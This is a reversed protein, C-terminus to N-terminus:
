ARRLRDDLLEFALDDACEAIAFDLLLQDHLPQFGVRAGAGFEALEDVVLGRLPALQDLFGAELAFLNGDNRAFRLLGAEFERRRPNSRREAGRLSSAAVRESRM